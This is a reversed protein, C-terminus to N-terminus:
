PGGAAVPMPPGLSRHRLAAAAGGGTIVLGAFLFAPAPTAAEVILGGAANGAAIGVVVATVLWAWAETITGAPAVRDLLVSNTTTLPTIALGAVALLAALGALSGALACAALGAGLWLQLLAFRAPLSPPWPRLAFLFGGAVSGASFVTLLMGAATAHGHFQAFAPVAVEVAGVGLGFAIAALAVTRMGPRGLPGVWGRGRREGRWSRSARTAAFALTGCAALVAEVVLVSAASALATVGAVLVPGVLFYLEIVVAELAYAAERRRQEALLAAWLARMSGSLQPTTAGALTALAVVPWIAAGRHFAAVLALLAAGHLGGCVLLVRSQGDRDILRGQVAGGVASGVGFAGSVAGALGFTGGGARVFLVLSLNYMGIPVRGIGAFAAPWRAGPTALVGLPAPLRV